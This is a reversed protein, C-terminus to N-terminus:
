ITQENFASLNLRKFYVPSFAAPHQRFLINVLRWTSKRSGLKIQVNFVLLDMITETAAASINTITVTKEKKTMKLESAAECSPDGCCGLVSLLGAACCVGTTSPCCGKLSCCLGELFMAFRSLYVTEFGGVCVYVCVCVCM